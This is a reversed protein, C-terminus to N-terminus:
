KVVNFLKVSEIASPPINSKTFVGYKYLPDASFTTGDILKSLDIKLIAYEGDRKDYEHKFNDERKSNAALEKALIYTQKEDTGLYIREPHYRKKSQTRPSLGNREIAKVYKIPTAHYLYKYENMVIQTVDTGQKSECLLAIYTGKPANNILSDDIVNGPINKIQTQTRYQVSAIVWGAVDLRKRVSELIEVTAKEPLISFLVLNRNGQQLKKAYFLNPYMRDILRCLKDSGVSTILGENLTSENVNRKSFIGFTNFRSEHLNLNLVCVKESQSMPCNNGNNVRYNTEGYRIYLPYRNYGEFKFSKDKSLNDYVDFITRDDVESVHYMSNDFREFMENLELKFKTALREYLPLFQEFYVEDTPVYENDSHEKLHEKFSRSKTIILDNYKTYSLPYGERVLTAKLKDTSISNIRWELINNDQVSFIKNNHQIENFYKEVLSIRDAFDDVFYKEFIVHENLNFRYLHIKNKKIDDFNNKIFEIYKM